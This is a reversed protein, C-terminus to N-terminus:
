VIAQKAESAKLKMKALETEDRNPKEEYWGIITMAIYHNSRARHMNERYINPNDAYFLAKRINNQCVDICCSLAGILNRQNRPLWKIIIRLKRSRKSIARLLADTFTKTPTRKCAYYVQRQKEYLQNVSEVDVHDEKIGM